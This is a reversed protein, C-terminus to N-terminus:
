SQGEADALLLPLIQREHVLFSGVGAALASYAAHRQKTQVLNAFGPVWQLLHSNL